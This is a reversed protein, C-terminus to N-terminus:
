TILCEEVEKASNNNLHNLFASLLLKHLKCSEEYTPLDCSNSSLIQEILINTLESQKTIQFYGVKSKWDDKASSILIKGEREDVWIRCTDSDILINIPIAGYNYSTIEFQIRNNVSSGLISGSFEIFGPRKSKLIEQDLYRNDLIYEYEDTLYSLFDLFHIANCGLGWKSGSVQFRIKNAERILPKIARYMPYARRSCNVWCTIQNRKILKEVNSYQNLSPFLFKELLMYKISSKSVLEEIVKQRVKSNTAVIAFDLSNPLDDFSSLYNITHPSSSNNIINEYREKATSLAKKDPDVVYIEAEYKLNALAQLHRSGINGAGIVAIKIKNM